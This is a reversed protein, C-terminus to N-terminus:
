FTYRVRLFVEDRQRIVSLGNEVFQDEANRGARYPDSAVNAIPPDKKQWGGWFMAAGLTVSFNSTYLYTIQPIGAGSTSKFDYVFTLSPTLRDQWYGTQINLTALVNWPGNAQFGKEYDPIYQFFWQSNIFFTRNSNLFNIFTPRDMSVTLNFNDSSSLNDRIENSNAYKQDEIWTFEMSWNSKTFDEAFDASFGLVNRKNYRLTGTGGQHWDFDARGFTGNGAARVTRRTTHLIAYFSQVVSCLQPKRFSCGDTRFPDTGDFGTIAREDYEEFVGSFGVLVMLANWSFASMESRFRQGTFPHKLIDQGKPQGTFAERLHPPTGDQQRNYGKEGPGRCGPLVILKGNVYRTCRAGGLFQDTGPQLAQQYPKKGAEFTDWDGFTGQAGPWSEAFISAETNLLDVGDNDCNTAWFPGCGLLAEQEDSLVSSLGINAEGAFIGTDTPGGDFAAGGDNTLAVLPIDDVDYVGDGNLDGDNPLGLGGFTEVSPIFPAAIGGDGALLSFLNKAYFFPFVSEDSSNGRFIASLLTAIPVGAFETQSNLVSQACVTRDLAVFGVSSSCIVAFRQQNAHHNLLANRDGKSGPQLCSVEGGTICDGTQDSVRPRGTNPDVNRRYLYDVSLYPLDDYGYFDTIAFSFRDWRFEVRVGGELGSPDEWPNPPRREGALGQGIIGHSMLGASKNCAPNPSYPEGCRGIDNPEFQDFNVAGEIRVDSLPGVEYLSWVARASWLSIRSEELSPLSALALDQPNMQDTTRFLETKGWVISQKGLRLWLRSDFLEADIYIEKLEGEDQQSAGRNWSLQTQNFNTDHSSYADSDVQDAVVPNPIYLGRPQSKRKKGDTQNGINPAPRYPLETSGFTQTVPNFDNANFPNARDALPAQSRIKDRPRWPGLVQLGQGAEPGPVRRLGFRYERGNSEVFPAFTYFAPDDSTGLVGDPGEIGFLTDVGPVHWIFGPRKTNGEPADKFEFGLEKLPIGALERTDGTYVAGTVGKRRAGRLRGPLRRPRDGFTNASRMTGCGRTWVCDYRAEVRGFVSLMDLPGITDDLVDWEVEVNVVNYWQTLDLEDNFNSSIARVQAEYFGHVQLDGDLLEFAGATPVAWFYLAAM